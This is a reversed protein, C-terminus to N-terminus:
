STQLLQYIEDKLKMRERRMEYEHAESTPMVSTEARHIAHNVEGYREILRAFHPDSIKLRQIEDAHEPLDVSLDHPTHTM